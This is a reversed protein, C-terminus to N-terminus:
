LSFYKANCVMMPKKPVANRAKMMAAVAICRRFGCLDQAPVIRTWVIQVKQVAQWPNFEPKSCASPFSKFTQRVIAGVYGWDV